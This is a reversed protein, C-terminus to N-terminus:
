QTKSLALWPIPTTPKASFLRFPLFHNFIFRFDLRCGDLITKKRVRVLAIIRSATAPAAFLRSAIRVFNNEYPPEFFDRLFPTNITKKKRKARKRKKVVRHINKERNLSFLLLFLVLVGNIIRVRTSLFV